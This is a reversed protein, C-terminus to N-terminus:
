KATYCFPSSVVYQPIEFVYCSVGGPKIKDGFSFNYTTYGKQAKEGREFSVANEPTFVEGNKYVIMAAKPGTGVKVGLAGEIKFENGDVARPSNSPRENIRFLKANFAAITSGNRLAKELSASNFEDSLIYTTFDGLTTQVLSHMDIGSVVFPRAASKLAKLYFDKEMNYNDVSQIDNFFEIGDFVEPSPGWQKCGWPHNWIFVANEKRLEAILDDRRNADYKHDLVPPDPIGSVVNLHCMVIGDDDGENKSAIVERGAIVSFDATNYKDAEAKFDKFTLRASHPTFIVGKYGKSKLYSVIKPINESGGDGTFNTHVHVWVPVIQFSASGSAGTAAHAGAASSLLAVSILFASVIAYSTISKIVRM